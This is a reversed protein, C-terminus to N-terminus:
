FLHFAKGLDGVVDAATSITAGVVATPPFFSLASGAVGATDLIGSQWHGSSFDNYANYADKIGLVGNVVPDFHGLFDGTIPGAVNLSDYAFEGSQPFIGYNPNMFMDSVDNGVAFIQSPTPGADYIVRHVGNVFTTNIRGVDDGLTNAWAGLPDYTGSGNGGIGVGDTGGSPQHFSILSPDIVSVLDAAADSVYATGNPAIAISAPNPPFIPNPDTQIPDSIWGNTTNIVTLNGSVDTGSGPASIDAYLYHGDPSLAMGFPRFDGKVYGNLPINSTVVGTTADIVSVGGNTLAGNVVTDYSAYLYHGDPSILLGGDSNGSLPSGVISNTATDIATISGVATADGTVFHSGTSAYVRTGDPSMVLHPDVGWDGLPVTATVTNTTTNIVSVSSGTDAAVYVNNGSPTVVPNQPVYVPIQNTVTDTATNIVTVTNDIRNPVYLQSGDPTIAMTGTEYSAFQIPASATNTATNITVVAGLDNQEGSASVIVGDIYVHSGDPAAVLHASGSDVAIPITTVVTNSAPDVVSVIGSNTHAENGSLVYVDAGHPGNPVVVMRGSSDTPITAVVPNQSASSSAGATTTSAAATSMSAPTLSATTASGANGAAAAASSASAQGTAASGGNAAAAITSAAPNDILPHGLLTAPGNLTNLVDQQMTQLASTTTAEADAYASGAGTLLQTFQAHFAAAQASLSQFQQAQGSFLSAIAASVEDGAAAVVATTPTAAAANAARLSSGIGAVDAATAALMDPTALMYSM